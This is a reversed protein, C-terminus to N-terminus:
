CVHWRSQSTVVLLGVQSNYKTLEDIYSLYYKLFPGGLIVPGLIGAAKILQTYQSAMEDLGGEWATAEWHKPDHIAWIDRKLDQFAFYNVTTGTSDHILILPPFKPNDEDVPAFQVQIPNPARQFM